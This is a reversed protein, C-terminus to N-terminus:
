FCSKKPKIFVIYPGSNVDLSLMRAYDNSRVTDPKGESDVFWIAVNKSGIADGFYRFEEHLESLEFPQINKVWQRNPFLFFTYSDYADKIKVDPKLEEAALFGQRDIIILEKSNMKTSVTSCGCTVFILFVGLVFVGSKFLKPIKWCFCIGGLTIPHYYKRKLKKVSFSFADYACRKSESSMFDILNVLLIETHYDRAKVVSIVINEVGNVMLQKYLGLLDSAESFREKRMRQSLESYRSIIGTECGALIVFRASIPM